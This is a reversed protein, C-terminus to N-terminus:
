YGLFLIEFEVNHSRMVVQANSYKRILDIYPALYLTELQIVDYQNKHLLDTLKDRFAKFFFRNVHFSERSFLNIFAGLPTVRNDLKVTYIEHYHDFSPPLSDIDLYHKITNMSLLTIECDLVKLSQSLNTVAISEGDKLPFPFKKTLQLIRTM